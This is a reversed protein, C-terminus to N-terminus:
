LEIITVLGFFFGLAGYLILKNFYPGAFSYFMDKLEKPHMAEIEKTIVKKFDVADVLQAINDTISEFAADIIIELMHDKLKLDLIENINKIFAEFFPLLVSRLEEKDKIINALFHDLDKKFIDKDLFEEKIFISVFTDLLAKLTGKLTDSNKLNNQLYDFERLLMAKDVNKLIEKIKVHELIDPIINKDTLESIIQFIESKNSSLNVAIAQLIVKIQPQFLKYIDLLTKLNFLTLIEQLKLSFIGNIFVSMSKQLSANFSKSALISSILDDVKKQQILNETYGLDTIKTDLMNQIILNIETSKKDIFDPVKKDLIIDITKNIDRKAVWGVGFPMKKMIESRILKKNEKLTPLVAEDIIRNLNREIIQPLMGNIMDSLRTKPGFEGKTFFNLLENITGHGYFLNVLSNNVKASISKKISQKFLNDLSKHEIFHQFDPEFVAIFKKLQEESSLLTVFEDFKKDRFKDLEKIIDSSIFTLSNEYNIFLEFQEHLFTSFDVQMAKDFIFTTASSAYENRKDYYSMSITFLKQAIVSENKDLFSFILNIAENSIDNTNSNQHILKDIIAYDNHAIHKTIFSKLEENNNAFFDEISTGNLMFEDVFESMKVAMKSKNSPLVGESLPVKFNAIKLPTYPQFLMKIALYNTAVGVLAYLIPNLYSPISLAGVSAGAIGGLFAGFYNIPKLEEGMFEEVMDKIQSPPLKTLENKVAESVNGKLMEELNDVIVKVLATELAEYLEESQMQIIIDKMSKTTILENMYAKYDLDVDDMNVTNHIPKNLIKNANELIINLINEENIYTVVRDTLTDIRTGVIEHITQKKFKIILNQTEHNIVEKIGDTYLYNKKLEELGYPILNNKISTVDLKTYEKVQKNLVVDVLNFKKDTQLKTLNNIVLSSIKEPTVIKKQSIFTYLEGISKNELIDLLQKVIEEEAKEKHQALFTKVKQLIQFDQVINTYFISVFKKKISAFVGDSLANDISTNILEELEKENQDIFTIIQGIIQPLENQIFATISLKISDDLLNLISSDVTKINELITTVSENIAEKGEDTLAIKIFTDILNKVSQKEDQFLQKIPLNEVEKKILSLLEDIEITNFLKDITTNIESDYKQFNLTYIINEINQALQKLLEETIFDHLHFSQLSDLLQSVYSNKNTNITTALTKSFHLIQLHSLADKFPKSAIKHKVEKQLHHNKDLFDLANDRTDFIGEIDKLAISHHMLSHTFMDQVLIKIYNRFKESQFEDALTSHNILDKEILASINEVFEDHTDEIMGGFRGFYKKFLMKIAINNTIYGTGAGILTNILLQSIM